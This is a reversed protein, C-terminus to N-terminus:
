ELSLGGNWAVPGNRDIDTLTGGLHFRYKLGLFFSTSHSGESTTYSSGARISLPVNRSLLVEVGGCGTWAATGRVRVYDGEAFLAASPHIYYEAGVGGYYGSVDGSIGGGKFRVSLVQSAYWEAFGGYATLEENIGGIKISGHSISAGLVGKDDRWFVDADALWVRSSRGSFSTAAAGGLQLNLGPEGFAFLMSGSGGASNTNRAPGDGARDWEAGVVASIKTAAGANPCAVLLGVCVAAFRRM